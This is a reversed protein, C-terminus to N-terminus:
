ASSPVTLACIDSDSDIIACVSSAVGVFMSVFALLAICVHTITRTTSIPHLSGYLTHFFIIPLFISSTITAFAGVIGCVQLFVIM